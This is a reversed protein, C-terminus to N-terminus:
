PRPDRLNSFHIQIRENRNEHNHCQDNDRQEHKELKKGTMSQIEASADPTRTLMDRQDGHAEGPRASGFRSDREDLRGFGSQAQRDILQFAMEEGAAVDVADDVRQDRRLPGVDLELKSRAAAISKAPRSTSCATCILTLGRTMSVGITAATAFFPMSHLDFGADGHAGVDVPEDAAGAFLRDDGADAFADDRRDARGLRM